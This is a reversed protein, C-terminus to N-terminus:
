MQSKNINLMWDLLVLSHHSEPDHIEIDVIRRKGSKWGGKEAKSSLTIHYTDGALGHTPM